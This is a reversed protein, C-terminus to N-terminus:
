QTRSSTNRLSAAISNGKESEQKQRYIGDEQAAVQEAVAKSLYLKTVSSEYAAAWASPFRFM